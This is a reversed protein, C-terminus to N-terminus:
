DSMLGLVLRLAQRNLELIELSIRSLRKFDVQLAQIEDPDSIPAAPTLLRYAQIGEVIKKLQLSREAVVQASTIDDDQVSFQEMIASLSTKQVQIEKETEQSTLAVESLDREIFDILDVQFFRVIRILKGSGPEASGKEYSAINGRNLGVKTALEQQSLGLGKRLFRLNSYIYSMNEGKIYIVLCM